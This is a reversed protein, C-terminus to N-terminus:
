IISVGWAVIIGRSYLVEAKAISRNYKKLALALSSLKTDDFASGILEISRLRSDRLENAFKKIIEKAKSSGKDKAEKVVVKSLELATQLLETNEEQQIKQILKNSQHNFEERAKLAKSDSQLKLLNAPNRLMAYFPILRNIAQLYGGENLLYDIHMVEKKAIEVMVSDSHHIVFQARGDSKLVRFIETLTLDSLQYEIGFQSTVLDFTDDSLPIDDISTKFLFNVKHKNQKVEEVLDSEKLDSIDIGTYLGCQGTHKKQSSILTGIVAGKGSCLDLVHHSEEINLSCSDWFKNIDSNRSKVAEACSQVSNQSWYNTWVSQRNKKNM